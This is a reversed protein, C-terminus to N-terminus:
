FKRPIRAIQHPIKISMGSKITERTSLLTDKHLFVLVIALVHVKKLTHIRCRIKEKEGM